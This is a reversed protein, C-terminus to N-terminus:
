FSGLTWGEGAKYACRLMRHDFSDQGLHKRMSPLDLYATKAVTRLTVKDQRGWSWLTARSVGFVQVALPLPMLRPGLDRARSRPATEPSPM